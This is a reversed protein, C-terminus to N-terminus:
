ILTYIDQTQVTQGVIIGPYLTQFFEIHILDPQPFAFFPNKVFRKGPTAVKSKNFLSGFFNQLSQLCVYTGCQEYLIFFKGKQQTNKSARHYVRIRKKVITKDNEM